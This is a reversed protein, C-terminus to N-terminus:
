CIRSNINRHEIVCGKIRDWLLTAIKKKKKKWKVTIKKSETGVLLSVKETGWMWGWGRGDRWGATDEWDGHCRKGSFIMYRTAALYYRYQTGFVFFIFFYWSYFNWLILICWPFQWVAYFLWFKVLDFHMISITLKCLIILIKCAWFADHFNHFHM